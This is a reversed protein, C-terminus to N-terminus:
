LTAGSARVPATIWTPFRLNTRKTYPSCPTPCASPLVLFCKIPDGNPSGIKIGVNLQSCPEARKRRYPVRIAPAPPSTRAVHAIPASRPHRAAPAPLPFRLRRARALHCPGACAALSGPGAAPRLAREAMGCAAPRQRPFAPCRQCTRRAIRSIPGSSAFLPGQRCSERAMYGSDGSQVRFHICLALIKGNQDRFAYM